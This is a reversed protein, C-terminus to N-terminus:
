IRESNSLINNLYKPIDSFKNLSFVKTLEKSKNRIDVKIQDIQTITNILDNKLKLFRYLLITQKKKELDNDVPTNQMLVIENHKISTIFLGKDNIFKNIVEDATKIDKYEIKNNPGFMIRFHNFSEEDEESLILVANKSYDEQISEHLDILVKIVDDLYDIIYKNKENILNEFDEKLLNKNKLLFSDMIPEVINLDKDDPKIPEVVNLDKDDKIPKKIENNKSFFSFMSKNSLINQIQEDTLEDNNLKITFEKDSKNNFFQDINSIATPQIISFETNSDSLNDPNIKNIIKKINKIKKNSDLHKFTIIIEEDNLGLSESFETFVKYKLLDKFTEKQLPDKLESLDLNSLNIDKIKKIVDTKINNWVQDINKQEIDNSLVNDTLNKFNKSMNELFDNYLMLSALYKNIINNFFFVNLIDIQSSTIDNLSLLDNYINLNEVSKKLNKYVDYASIFCKENEKHAPNNEDYVDGGNIKGNTSILSNFLFFRKNDKKLKNLDQPTKAKFWDFLGRPNDLDIKQEPSIKGEKDLNLMLQTIRNNAVAGSKSGPIASYNGYENDLKVIFNKVASDNAKGAYSILSKIKSAEIEDINLLKSIDVISTQGPNPGYDKSNVLMTSDTFAITELQDTLKLLNNMNKTNQSFKKIFNNFVDFFRTKTKTSNKNQRLSIRFKSNTAIIIKDPNSNSKADHVVQKVEVEFSKDKSVLDTTKSGGSIFGDLLSLLLFEGKGTNYNTAGSPAISNYITKAYFNQRLSTDKLKKFLASDDKQLDNKSYSSFPFKFISSFNDISLNNSFLKNCVDAIQNEQLNCDRLKKSIINCIQTTIPNNTQFALGVLKNTVGHKLEINIGSLINKTLIEFFNSSNSTNKENINFYNYLSYLKNISEDDIKEINFLDESIEPTELSFKMFNNNQKNSKLINDLFDNKIDLHSDTFIKSILKKFDEFKNKEINLFNGQLFESNSNKLKELISKYSSLMLRSKELFSTFNDDFFNNWFKENINSSSENSEKLLNYKRKKRENQYLLEIRIIENIIQSKNM